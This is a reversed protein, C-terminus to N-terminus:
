SFVSWTQQFTTLSSSKSKAPSGGEEEEADEGEPDIDEAFTVTVSKVSM